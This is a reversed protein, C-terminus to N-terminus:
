IIDCAFDYANICAYFDRGDAFDGRGILGM